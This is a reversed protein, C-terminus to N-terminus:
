AAEPLDPTADEELVLSLADEDSMEPYEQQITKARLAQQVTVETAARAEFEDAAEALAVDNRASLARAADTQHGTRRIHRLALGMSAAGFVDRDGAVPSPRDLLGGMLVQATDSSRMAKFAGRADLRGRGFAEEARIGDTLEGLLRPSENRYDVPRAPEPRRTMHKVVRSRFQDESDVSM